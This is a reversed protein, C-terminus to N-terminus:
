DLTKERRLVYHPTNVTMKYKRKFEPKTVMWVVLITFIVLIVGFVNLLIAVSPLYAYTEEPKADAKNLSFIAKETIGAVAIGASLAINAIGGFVHFPLSLRRYIPNAKPYLFTLYSSVLSITVGTLAALGLWSHLSYFHPISLWAHSLYAALFGLWSTSIMATQLAFHLRKQAQYGLTRTSRYILIGNANLFIMGLTMLIPHFNFILKDAFGLGGIQLMWCTALIVLIVGLLEVFLLCILFLNDQSLTTLITETIPGFRTSEGGGGGQNGGGGHGENDSDQYPHHGGGGQEKQHYVHAM